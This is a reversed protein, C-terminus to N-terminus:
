SERVGLINGYNDYVTYTDHMENGNMQRLLITRESKDKLEYSVNGDEDTTRIMNLAETSYIETSSVSADAALNEVNLQAKGSANGNFYLVTGESNLFSLYTDSLESCLHNIKLLDVGQRLTLKYFVNNTSKGAFENTYDSSTNHSDNFMFGIDYSSIDIATIRKDGVAGM